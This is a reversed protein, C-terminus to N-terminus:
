WAVTTGYNSFTWEATCHLTDGYDSTQTFTCNFGQLTGDEGFLVTAETMNFTDADGYLDELEVTVPAISVYAKRAEDYTYNGRDQLFALVYLLTNARVEAMEKETLHSKNPHPEENSYYNCTCHMAREGDIRFHTETRVSDESNPFQMIETADITVNISSSLEELAKDWEEETVTSSQTYKVRTVSCVTCTYLIEGDTNVGDDWTHYGEVVYYYCNVCTGIHIEGYDDWMTDGHVHLTPTNVDPVTLVFDGYEVVYDQLHDGDSFPGPGITRCAVVKGDEIRVEVDTVTGSVTLDKAYYWGTAADYTFSDYLGALAIFPKSLMSFYFSSSDEQIWKEYFTKGGDESGIRLSYSYYKGNEKTYYNDDDLKLIDGYLVQTQHDIYVWEGGEDVYMNLVCSMNGVYNMAADWEEASNVRGGTVPPLVETKTAGCTICTFKKEGETEETPEKTVTGNDWEHASKDLVATCTPNTCKHWHNAEDKSWESAATHDKLGIEQQAVTVTGCVSCKKGETLGAETCTAAKGSVVEETHSAPIETQAVTVTGCVSCKKGETLGTETCTAAKGSVTEETHDATPIETQAVTVRGCVSCKKGETLGAETCTAAKGPVTEETHALMPIPESIKEGCECMKERKGEKICTPAEVEVWEGYYVHIHAPEEECATLVIGICLCACIALLFSIAKKM